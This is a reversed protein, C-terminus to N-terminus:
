ADVGFGSAWVETPGDFRLSYRRGPIMVAEILAPASSVEIRAVVAGGGARDADGEVIAVSGEGAEVNLEFSVTVGREESSGGAGDRGPASVLEIQAGDSAPRRGGWGDAVFDGWRAGLALVETAVPGPLVRYVRNALCDRGDADRAPVGLVPPACTAVSELELGPPVPGTTTVESGIATLVVVDTGLMRLGPLTQPDDLAALGRVVDAPDDVAGTDSAPNVLVKGLEPQYTHLINGDEGARLMPYLAVTDVSDDVALMAFVAPTRDYSWTPPAWPTFTLSEFLAVVTVGGAVLLRRSPLTWRALVGDLGIAALAVVGTSVLVVFRSLVRVQPLVARILDAPMPVGIGFVTADPNLSCAIGVVVIGILGAAITRRSVDIPEASHAIGRRETASRRLALLGVIALGVPIVGLYLATEAVNSRHIHEIRWTEYWGPALPHRLSPLVYEFWRASYRGADAAARTTQEDVAGFDSLLTLFWPVLVVLAVAGAIVTGGLRIAIWRRASRGHTRLQAISMGIVFGLVLLFAFSLYYGDVYPLAGWCLGAALVRWPTVQEWLRIMALVLLPFLVLFVGAPHGWESKLQTFSSFAYLVAAVSAVLRSRVLHRVLAWMGLGATVHALVFTLNYACVPGVLTTFAWMPLWIVLNVILLPRWLVDGLTGGTVYQVSRFPSGGTREWAWNLWVAGSTGDNPRGRVTSACSTAADGMAIAALVTLVATTAWFSRWSARRLPRSMDADSAEARSTVTDTL